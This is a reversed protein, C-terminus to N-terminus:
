TSDKRSTESLSNEEMRRRRSRAAAGALLLLIVVFGGGGTLEITQGSGPHTSLYLGLLGTFVAGILCAVFTLHSPKM